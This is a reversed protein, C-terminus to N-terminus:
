QADVGYTNSLYDIVERAQQNSLRAGLEVMRSVTAEWEQRTKRAVKVTTLRHCTACREEVLAEPSKRSCGWGSTVILAVLGLLVLLTSAL